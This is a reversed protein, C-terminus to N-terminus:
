LASGLFQVYQVPLPQDLGLAKRLAALEDVSADGPLMTAAPDGSLRLAAFVLTVVGFAVLVTHFIKRTVYSMMSGRLRRRPRAGAVGPIRAAIYAGAPM